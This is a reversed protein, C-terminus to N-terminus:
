GMQISRSGVQGQDEEQRLSAFLGIEHGGLYEKNSGFILFELRLRGNPWRVKKARQLGLGFGLGKAEAKRVTRTPICPKGSTAHCAPAAKNPSDHLM